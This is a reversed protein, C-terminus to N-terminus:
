KENELATKMEQKKETSLAETTHEHLQAADKSIRRSQKEFLRCMKCIALHLKLQFKERWSLKKEEKKSVMFTAEKCSIMIFHNM